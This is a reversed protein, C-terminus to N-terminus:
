KNKLKFVTITVKIRPAERPQIRRSTSSHRNYHQKSWTPKLLKLRELQKRRKFRMLARSYWTLNSIRQNIWWPQCNNLPSDVSRATTTTSKLSSWLRISHSKRCSHSWRTSLRGTKVWTGWWIWPKVSNATTSAKPISCPSSCKLIIRLSVTLATPHQYTRKIIRIAMRRPCWSACASSGLMRKIKGAWVPTTEMHMTVGRLLVPRNSNTNSSLCPPLSSSSDQMLIRIRSNNNSWKSNSGVSKSISHISCLQKIRARNDDSLYEVMIQATLSCLLQIKVMRIPLQHISQHTDSRRLYEVRLWRTISITTTSMRAVTRELLTWPTASRTRTAM